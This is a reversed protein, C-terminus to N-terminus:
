NYQTNFQVARKNVTKPLSAIAEPILHVVGDHRRTIDSRYETLLSVDEEVDPILVQETMGPPFLPTGMAKGTRQPSPPRGSLACRSRACPPAHADHTHRVPSLTLSPSPLARSSLPPYGPARLGQSPWLQVEGGSLVPGQRALGTRCQLLAKDPQQRSCVQSALGLKPFTHEM